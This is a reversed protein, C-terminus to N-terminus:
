LLSEAIAKAAAEDTIFVTQKPVVKFYSLIANVKQKGAAVAILNNCNEVQELQIGITRIRHVIEGDANFYYGFAESVAGKEELIRLDEPSSNRRIAMEEASGIGHIVYDARDYYAMMETVMPEKLMAQYAQESLHEPLFLTRYQANMKAAFMAVLTNAQMQMEHGIGGRAAVFTVNRQTDEVPLFQALSAVTKGGTVAIIQESSVSKSFQKAAEKGLLTLVTEDDDYNGPVVIVKRVGFAKELTQALQTLGSWEYVLDQLRDIVVLGEETCVMGSKNSELLGQERLVEIEKRVERETMKLADALVRRGIPQVLQVKQLIRYRMQLLPYMEPLLTQQAEHVTLM